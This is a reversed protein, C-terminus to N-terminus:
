TLVQAMELGQFEKLANQLEEMSISGDGSVNIEHFLDSIVEKDDDNV